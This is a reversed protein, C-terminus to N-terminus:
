KISAGVVSAVTCTGKDTSLPVGKYCAQLEANTSLDPQVAEWVKKKPNLVADPEGEFGAVFVRDGPQAGEPPEVLEVKGEASTAALVMAESRVGRMNAPKLNCVLIVHRSQMQEEPIHKVLGSVVTRPGSEEGVDIEEVYLSCVCIYASSIYV